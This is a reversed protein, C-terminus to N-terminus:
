FLEERLNTRIDRDGSSPMLPGEKILELVATFLDDLSMNPSMRIHGHIGMKELLKPTHRWESAKLIPQACYPTVQHGVLLPAIITLKITQNDQSFLILSVACM